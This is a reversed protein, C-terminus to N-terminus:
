PKVGQNLFLTVHWIAFVPFSDIRRVPVLFLMELCRRRAILRLWIIVVVLCRRRSVLRDCRLVEAVAIRMLLLVM